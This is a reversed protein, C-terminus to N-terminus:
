LQMSHHRCFAQAKEFSKNLNEVFPLHINKIHEVAFRKLEKQGIESIVIYVAAMRWLIEEDM